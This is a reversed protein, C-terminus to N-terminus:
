KRDQLFATIDPVLANWPASANPPYHREQTQMGERVAEWSKTNKFNIEEGM